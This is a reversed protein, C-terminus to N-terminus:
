RKVAAFISTGVPIVFRLIRRLDYAYVSGDFAGGVVADGIRQASPVLLKAPRSWLMQGQPDYERLTGLLGTADGDEPRWALAHGADLLDIAYERPGVATLNKEAQGDRLIVNRVGSPDTLSRLREYLSFRAGDTAILRMDSIKNFQTGDWLYTGAKDPPRCGAEACEPQFLRLGIASWTLQARFHYGSPLIEREAGTTVDALLARTQCVPATPECTGFKFYAISRGDPSWAVPWSTLPRSGLSTARGSVLDLVTLVDQDLTLSACRVLLAAGDARAIAGLPQRDCVRGLDTTGLRDVRHATGDATVTYVVVAPWDTGGPADAFAAAAAPSATATPTPSPSAVPSASESPGSAPRACAALVIAIVILRRM